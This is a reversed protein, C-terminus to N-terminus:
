HYLSAECHERIIHAPTPAQSSQPSMVAWDRTSSDQHRLPACWASPPHTLSLYSITLLVCACAVGKMFPSHDVCLYASQHSLHITLCKDKNKPVTKNFLTKLLSCPNNCDHYNIFSSQWLVWQWLSDCTLSLHLYPRSLLPSTWRPHVHLPSGEQPSLCRRKMKMLSARTCSITWDNLSSNMLVLICPKINSLKLSRALVPTKLMVM